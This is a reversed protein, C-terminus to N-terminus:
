QTAGRRAQWFRWEAHAAQPSSVIGAANGGLDVRPAGARLCRLYTASQTYHALAAVIEDRTVVPALIRAADDTIGIKLPRRRKPNFCNPFTRRLIGLTKRPNTAIDM